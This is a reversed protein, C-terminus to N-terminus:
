GMKEVRAEKSLSGGMGRRLTFYPVGHIKKSSIAVSMIKNMRWKQDRQFQIPTFPDQRDKLQKLRTDLITGPIHIRLYQILLHIFSHNLLGM